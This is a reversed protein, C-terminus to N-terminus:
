GDMVSPHFMRLTASIALRKNERARGGRAAARRPPTTRRRQPSARSRSGRHKKRRAVLIGLGGLVLVILPTGWLLLTQWELPPKLLIFQGFRAVLYDRVQENTDGAELRQRVLLRIDRALSAHSDDISENQCVLCRLGESITRARVELVPNKLIEDPEVALAVSSSVLSLALVRSVLRVRVRDIRGRPKTPIEGTKALPAFCNLAAREGQTAESRECHRITALRRMM